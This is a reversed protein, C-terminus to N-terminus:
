YFHFVKININVMASLFFSVIQKNLRIKVNIKKKLFIKNNKEGLILCVNYRYM